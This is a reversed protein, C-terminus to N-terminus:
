AGNKLTEQEVIAQKLYVATDLVEEYADKLANRGNFPQLKTGYKRKGFEDRSKMDEIVMEWVSPEDNPIPAPEGWRDDM